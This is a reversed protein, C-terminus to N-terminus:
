DNEEASKRALQQQVADFVDQGTVIRGSYYGHCWTMVGILMLLIINFTDATVGVEWIENVWM